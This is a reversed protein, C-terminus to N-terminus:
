VQETLGSRGHTATNGSDMTTLVSEPQHIALVPGEALLNLDSDTVVVGIEIVRDIEPRLGTMEMDVWILRSEDPGGPLEAPPSAAAAGAHDISDESTGNM